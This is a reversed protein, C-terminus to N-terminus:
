LPSQQGLLGDIFPDVEQNRVEVPISHGFEPYIIARAEAGVSNLVDALRQSQRPDTAEDKAGSLILASAKIRNAVPLVSRERLAEEAGGTEAVLARIVGAKRSNPQPDAAYEALDYVGSILVLGTVSPDHAAVLAATLAGRSIGEIVVADPSSLGVARLRAIVGAVAHQTFPGCFDASGTSDGYGPQSVAVALYGRDAYKKLVGWEVFDKGGPRFFGNQHGHLFVITPWPPKGAPERIFYEVRKDVDDPHSIELRTAEADGHCSGVVLGVVTVLVWRVPYSSVRSRVACRIRGDWNM